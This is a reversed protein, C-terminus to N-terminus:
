SKKRLIKKKIFNSFKVFLYRIIGSIDKNNILRGLEKNARFLRQRQETTKIKLSEKHKFDLDYEAHEFLSNLGDIYVSKIKKNDLLYQWIELHKKTYDLWNWTSVSSVLTEKERQLQLLINELENYTTFPHTIGNNADLHYGQPVVITKIGSSLADVFGMQGEDTGMYLYYDLSPIFQLYKEYNFNDTYETEFGFEELCEVQSEWGGGFIKFKFYIPDLTKSLKNLYHENKRGDSYVRSAIGIIIKKIPLIGDHAPNIYCLKSNEIGMKALHIMTERSMCIGARVTPMQKRLMDFKTLRDIHTIMVTDITSKKGDYQYYILHHNIDANLDLKDSIDSQIGLKQLNENLKIAFKGIIWTHIDDYCVIHVKM